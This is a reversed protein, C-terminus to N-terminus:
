AYGIPIQMKEELREGQVFLPTTIEKTSQTILIHESGRM